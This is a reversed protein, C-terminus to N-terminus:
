IIQLKIHFRDCPEPVIQFSSISDIGQESGDFLPWMVIIYGLGQYYM